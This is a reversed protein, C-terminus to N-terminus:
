SPTGADILTWLRRLARLLRLLMRYHMRGLPLREIIPFLAVRGRQGLIDSLSLLPERTIRLEHWCGTAPVARYGGCDSQETAQETALASAGDAFWSLRPSRLRTATADVRGPPRLSVMTAGAWRPANVRWDARQGWHSRRKIARGPTARVTWVM